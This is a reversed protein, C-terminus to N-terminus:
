RSRLHQYLLYLIVLLFVTSYVPLIFSNVQLEEIWYVYRNLTGADVQSTEFNSLRSRTQYAILLANILFVVGGIYLSVRYYNSRVFFLFGLCLASAIRLALFGTAVFVLNM